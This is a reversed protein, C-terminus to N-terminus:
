RKNKSAGARNGGGQSQQPAGMSSRGRNSAARDASPNSAGGFAGGSQPQQQPRSAPQSTPRTTQNNAAPRTALRIERRLGPRRTEPLPVRPPRQRTQGDGAKSDTDEIWMEAAMSIEGRRRGLRAGVQVAMQQEPTRGEAQARRRVARPRVLRRTALARIGKIRPKDRGIITQEVPVIEPSPPRPTAQGTIGPTNGAGNGPRAPQTAPRTQANGASGGGNNPRNYKVGSNSGPQNGMSKAYVGNPNNNYQVPMPKYGPSM